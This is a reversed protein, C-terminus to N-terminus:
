RYIRHSSCRGLELDPKEMLHRAALCRLVRQIPHTVLQLVSRESEHQGASGCELGPELDYGWAPEMQRRQGLQLEAAKQQVMQRRQVVEAQQEFHLVRVPM